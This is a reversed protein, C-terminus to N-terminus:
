EIIFYYTNPDPDAPLTSVTVMKSNFVLSARTNLVMTGMESINTLNINAYDLLDNPQVSTSGATAGERIDSLDSIVPQLDLNGEGLLTQNNISKINEGSVLTEQKNGLESILNITGDANVSTM